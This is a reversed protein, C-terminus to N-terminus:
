ASDPVDLASVAQENEIEDRGVQVLRLTTVLGLGGVLNGLVAWGLFGLWDLYGFDAGSILAAFMELSGVISHELPGAVLVFALGYAAVLKATMSRTSHLLWTMLTIIMGGLVASAFSRVGIGPALYDHSVERAVPAVDPLAQVILWAVIWGAAINAVLTAIWLRVLLLPGARRAVVAAVPVLFNETFLESNGLTLAIFGIPFALAGLLPAGTAQRVVLLAMVGVGVDLGGVAGTAILSPWTRTLRAHGEEIAREFAGPVSEVDPDREIERDYPESRGAEGATPTREDRDTVATWGSM